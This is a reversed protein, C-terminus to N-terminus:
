SLFLREEWHGDGVVSPLCVPVFSPVKGLHELKTSKCLSGALDVISGYGKTCESKMERLMPYEKLNPILMTTLSGLERM